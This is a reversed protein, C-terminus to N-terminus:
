YTQSLLVQLYFWFGELPCFGSGIKDAEWGCLAYIKRLDMNFNDTKEKQAKSSFKGGFSKGGFKQLCETDEWGIYAFYCV